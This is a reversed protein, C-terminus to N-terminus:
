ENNVGLSIIFEDVQRSTPITDQAGRETVTMAGCINARYIAEEICKGKALESALMGIFADGAATSDVADVKPAPIIVQKATSIYAAGKSGLTIIVSKCGKRLFFQGAQFISETTSPEIGCIAKTETENPIIIDAYTYVEDPLVKAPAPNLITILDLSKAFKLGQLVSAQPIEHQSIFIDKPRAFKKVIKKDIEFNYKGNAGQELIIRNEGDNVIIVASGTAGSKHQIFKTNVKNKKLNKLSDQAFIDNGVAGLMIVSCGQKACSIAQNSGKGGCSISFNSGNITEGALPMQSVCISLDVNISGMVIVKNM